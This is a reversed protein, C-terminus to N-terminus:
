LVMLATVSIASTTPQSETGDFHSWFGKAKVADQFRVSFIACNLGSSNLKLISLPLSDSMSTTATSM